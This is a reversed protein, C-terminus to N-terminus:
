TTSDWVPGDDVAPAGSGNPPVSVKVQGFCIGGFGDEADFGISYVRGNGGGTREARVVATSTDVGTGDPQSNGSRQGVVPEDQFISNITITIADGDPDTVGLINVDNFKRDPPLIIM